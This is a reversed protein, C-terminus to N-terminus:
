PKPRRQSTPTPTGSACPAIYPPEPSGPSAHGPHFARRSDRSSPRPPQEAPSFFSALPGPQDAFAAAPVRALAAAPRAPNVPGAHPLTPRHALRAPNLPAAPGRLSVPWPGHASPHPLSLLAPQAPRPHQAAAPCQTPGLAPFPLLLTGNRTPGTSPQTQKQTQKRNRRKKKQLCVLKFEFLNSNM